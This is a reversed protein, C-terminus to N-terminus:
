LDHKATKMDYLAKLAAGVVFLLMFPIIFIAVMIFMFLLTFLLDM